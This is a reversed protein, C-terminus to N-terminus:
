SKKTKGKISPHGAAQLVVRIEQALAKAPGSRYSGERWVLGVGRRPTPDYLAVNSVEAEQGLRIGLNPLITAKTGTRVTALIGEISNMEIAAHLRVKAQRFSENILRRTCFSENLVVLPEQDLDAIRMRRRNALRHHKSVVLFLEEEFLLEVALMGKTPPVFSLGFAFTGDLIGVEVEDASIEKVRIGIQPYLTSFQALVQPMLYANVTQVVGITLDGRQLGELEEIATKAEELEKLARSARERFIHGPQTLQLNRGVRDFLPTGIEEELQRLQQSLTPQSVHLAEAARTVHGREAVALFYRLHRLEM